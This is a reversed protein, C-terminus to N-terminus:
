HFFLLLLLLLMRAAADNKLHNFSYLIQAYEDGIAPENIVLKDKLSTQFAPYLNYDKNIYFNVEGLKQKLLQALVVTSTSMAPM